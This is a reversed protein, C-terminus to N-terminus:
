SVRSWPAEELVTGGWPDVQGISAITLTDGDIRFSFTDIPRSPCCGFNQGGDNLTFVHDNVFEYSAPGETAHDWDYIVLSGELFRVSRERDVAGKCLVAPQIQTETLAGHSPGPVNPGWAFERTYEKLLTLVSTDSNGKLKALAQRQWPKLESVNRQFTGVNEECTFTQHWQGELADPAPHATVVAPSPQLDQSSSNGGSGSDCAVLFLLALGLCIVSWRKM